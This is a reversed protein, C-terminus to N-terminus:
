GKRLARKVPAFTQRHIPCPGHKQLAEMHMKTGYGKHKEFGYEPYKAHMDLMIRDRTVKAVISAASISKVLKDGGVIAKQELSLNPITKNGDFLIIMRNNTTQQLNNTLATLAKKAALYTAELINIRDITKHDCIGVGVHFHEHIFDFINERQKHSLTKSDRILDWDKSVEHGFPVRLTKLCTACAVVPGALPGRGAEDIGIIIEYGDAYLKNELNFTSGTLFKNM